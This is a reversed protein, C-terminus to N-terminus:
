SQFFFNRASFTVEAFDILGLRILDDILIGSAKSALRLLVEQNYISDFGAAHGEVKMEEDIQMMDAGTLKGYDLKIENLFTGDDKEIPSVLTVVKINPNEVVVTEENKKVLKEEM